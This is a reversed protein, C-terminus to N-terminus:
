MVMALEHSISHIGRIIKERMAPRPRRHGSAYHGIQRQDIGTARAIASRTIIGDLRHLIASTELVFDLKYEGSKLWEPLIDGDTICGEFHFELASKMEKELGELTKSTVLIIGNLTDYDDTCASYNKGAWGVIVKITKM